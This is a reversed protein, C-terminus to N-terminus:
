FYPDWLTWTVLCKKGQIGINKQKRIKKLFYLLYFTVPGDKDFVEPPRRIKRPARAM